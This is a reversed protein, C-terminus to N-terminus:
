QSRIAYQVVQRSPGSSLLLTTRSHPVLVSFREDDTALCPSLIAENSARREEIDGDAPSMHDSEVEVWQVAIEVPAVM